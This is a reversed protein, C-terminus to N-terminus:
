PERKSRKWERYEKHNRFRDRLFIIFGVLILIPIGYVLFYGFMYGLAGIGVGLMYLVAWGFFTGIVLGLLVWLVVEKKM